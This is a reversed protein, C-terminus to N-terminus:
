CKGVEGFLWMVNGGLEPEQAADGVDVYASYAMTGCLHIQRIARALDNVHEPVRKFFCGCGHMEPHWVDRAVQMMEKRGRGQRGMLERSSGVFRRGVHLGAGELSKDPGDRILGDSGYCVQVTAVDGM